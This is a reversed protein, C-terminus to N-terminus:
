SRRFTAIKALANGGSGIPSGREQLVRLIERDSRRKGDEDIELRKVTRKLPAEDAFRRGARARNWKAAAKARRDHASRAKKVDRARAADLLFLQLAAEAMELRRRLAPAIALLRDDDLSFQRRGAEALCRALTEFLERDTLREVPAAPTHKVTRTTAVTV